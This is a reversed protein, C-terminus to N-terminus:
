SNEDQFAPINMRAGDPTCGYKVEMEGKVEDSPEGEGSKLITGYLNLSRKTLSKAELFRSVNQGKVLLYYYSGDITVTFICYSKEERIKDAISM